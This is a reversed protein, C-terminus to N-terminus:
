SCLRDQLSTQDDSVAIRSSSYVDHEGLSHQLDIVENVNNEGGTLTLGSDIDAAGCTPAIHSHIYSSMIDADSGMEAGCLTNRSDMGDDGTHDGDDFRLLSGVAYEYIIQAFGKDGGSSARKM